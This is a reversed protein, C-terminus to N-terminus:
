LKFLCQIGNKRLANLIYSKHAFGVLIIIKKSPYQQIIEAAHKALASNRKNMEFDVYLDFNQKVSVTDKKADELTTTSFVPYNDSLEKLKVYKYYNLSDVITNTEIQNIVSLKESKLVTIISDYFFLKKISKEEENTLSKSQMLQQLIAGFANTIEPYIGMEQRYEERREFEIPRIQVNPFNMKYRTTAIMENGDFLTKYTFDDYFFTSDLEMLIIDPKFKLLLNYISDANVNQTANHVTGVLLVRNEGNSHCSFFCFLAVTLFLNKFQTFM